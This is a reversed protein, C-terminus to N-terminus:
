ALAMNRLKFIEDLIWLEIVDARTDIRKPDSLRVRDERDTSTCGNIHCFEDATKSVFIGM